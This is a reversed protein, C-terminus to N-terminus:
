DEVPQKLWPLWQSEEAKERYANCEAMWKALEEDTMARIKDANTKPKFYKEWVSTPSGCRNLDIDDDWEIEAGIEENAFHCICNVSVSDLADQRILVKISDLDVSDALDCVYLTMKYLQAM